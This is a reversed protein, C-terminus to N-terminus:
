QALPLRAAASHNILRTSTSLHSMSRADASAVASPSVLEARFVKASSWILARALHTSHRVSDTQRVSEVETRGCLEDPELPWGARLSEPLRPGSPVLRTPAFEIRQNLLDFADHDRDVLCMQEFRGPAGLM